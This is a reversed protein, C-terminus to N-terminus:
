SADAVLTLIRTQPAGVLAPATEPSAWVNTRLFGLFREAEETSAFDLDILVYRPDDVPQLIRHRLVGSRARVEGFRDFAAKWVGFDVIAHEIHLTAM